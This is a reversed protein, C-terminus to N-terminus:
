DAGGIFPIVLINGDDTELNISNGDSGPQTAVLRVVFDVATATCLAVDPDSNIYDATNAASETATAGIQIQSGFKPNLGAVVLSSGFSPVDMFELRGTAAVASSLRRPGIEPPAAVSRQFPEGLQRV